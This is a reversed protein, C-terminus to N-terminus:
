NSPTFRISDIIPQAEAAAQDLMGDASGHLRAIIVMEGSV